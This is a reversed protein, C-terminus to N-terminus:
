LAWNPLHAAKNCSTPTIPSMRSQVYVTCASWNSRPVCVTVVLHAPRQESMPAIFILNQTRVRCVIDHLSSFQSKLALQLFIFIGRQYFSPTPKKLQDTRSQKQLYRYLQNTTRFWSAHVSPGWVPAVCYRYWRCLFPGSFWNDM